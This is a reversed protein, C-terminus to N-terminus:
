ANKGGGALKSIGVALLKEIIVSLVIVTLTLAFMEDSLLYTKTDYLMTGLSVKPTCLVEAAIGAKWSLGVASKVGASFYPLTSPILLYKIRKGRSLMFVDAVEAMDRPVSSFGRLVNTYIIPLAILLTATVPVIDRKIFFLMVIIISAVPTAKIVSIAPSIIFEAGIHSLVALLTGLVTGIIFGMFVRLLSLGCAAYFNGTGLLEWLKKLTDLPSPVIVGSNVILSLIQWLGVWFIVCVAIKIAKKTTKKM